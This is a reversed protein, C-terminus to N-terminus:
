HDEGAREATPKAALHELVQELPEPMHLAFGQAYDIHLWRLHTLIEKNEVFEACVPIDLVQAIRATARVMERDLASDVIGRVFKGDIKIMQVPLNQLYGFSSLGSGFDDLAFSYGEQQLTDILTAAEQLNAIAVSETIEFCLREAPIRHRGVAERIVNALGGRALTAGSLNINFIKEPDNALWPEIGACATRIIWHDIAPMLNYREAASLFAGPPVLSGDSDQMRVLIEVRRPHGPQLPEIRQAYLLLEENQLAHNLRAVWRIQGGRREADVDGPEYAHVRNGGQQKAAYSAADAESLAEAPSPTDPTIPAVGISTTVNFVQDDVVFHFGEAARRLKEAVRKGLEINCNRLLLGFEDGGLRALTDTDRVQRQLLFALQGLLRDGAAHGCTDNVVKFGDLDIYALTHSEGTERVHDLLELLRRNFERRNSLGTLSDRSAHYSLLHDAKSSDRTDYFVLVSGTTVGERDRIPTVTDEVPICEGSRTEIVHGETLGVVTGHELCTGVPDDMSAHLRNSVRFVSQVPHGRTEALPWGTIREAVPNMYEIHGERNTTIIADGIANLTVEALERSHFHAAADRRVRVLSLGAISGAILALSLYSITAVQQRTAVHAIGAESVQSAIDSIRLIDDILGTMGAFWEQADYPYQGSEAARLVRDGLLAEHHGFHETEFNDLAAILLPHADLLQRMELLRNVDRLANAKLTTLNRLHPTSMPRNTAAYHAVLARVQGAHESAQWVARQVFLNIHQVDQPADAAIVLHDRLTEAEAIVDSAAILWDDLFAEELRHPGADILAAQRDAEDRTTRLVRLADELRQRYIRVLDAETELEAALLVDVSALAETWREDTATRLEAVRAAVAPDGSRGLLLATLGRERAQAASAALLAGAATNGQQLRETARVGQWAQWGLFLAAGLVLIGALGVAFYVINGWLFARFPSETGTRNM